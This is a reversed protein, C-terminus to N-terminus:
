LLVALALLCIDEPDTSGRIYGGKTYLSTKGGQFLRMNIKVPINPRIKTALETFMVVPPNNIM